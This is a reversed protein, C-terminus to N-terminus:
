SETFGNDDNSPVRPGPQSFCNEVFKDLQTMWDDFIKECLRIDYVAALTKGVYKDEPRLDEVAVGLAPWVWNFVRTWISPLPTYRGRHEKLYALDLGSAFRKRPHVIWCRLHPPFSSFHTPFPLALATLDPNHYPFLYPFLNRRALFPYSSCRCTRTKSLVYLSTSPRGQAKKLFVGAKGRATCAMWFEVKIERPQPRM